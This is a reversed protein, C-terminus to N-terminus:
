VTFDYVTQKDERHLNQVIQLCAEGTLWPDQPPPWFRRILTNLLFFRLFIVSFNVSCGAM